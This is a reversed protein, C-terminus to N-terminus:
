QHAQNLTSALGPKVVGPAPELVTDQRAVALTLTLHYRWIDM